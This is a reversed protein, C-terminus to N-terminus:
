GGRPGYYREQEQKLIEPGRLELTGQFGEGFYRLTVMYNPFMEALKMIVPLPPSWATDFSIRAHQPDIDKVIVEFTIKNTDLHASAWDDHTM